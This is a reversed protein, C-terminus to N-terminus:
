EKVKKPKPANVPVAIGNADRMGAVRKGTKPDLIWVGGNAM